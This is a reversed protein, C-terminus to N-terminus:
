FNSLPMGGTGVQRGYQRDIEIKTIVTQTRVNYISNLYAARNSFPSENLTSLPPPPKKNPDRLCSTECKSKNRYRGVNFMTNSM